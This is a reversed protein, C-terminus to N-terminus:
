YKMLKEVDEKKTADGCMLIHEGLKYVEGQKSKPKKPPEPVYDSEGDDELDIDDMEIDFGFDSMDLSINELEVSLKELDWTAIEGTKNDVLRFAKIQDASLDNARICPVTELGLRQSAKM